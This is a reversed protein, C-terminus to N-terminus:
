RVFYLPRDPPSIEKTGRKSPGLPVGLGAGAPPLLVSPPVISEPGQPPKWAWELTGPQRGVRFTLRVPQRGPELDIERVVTQESLGDTVLPPASGVALEVTGGHTYFKFAHRGRSGVDLFGSWVIEFPQRYDLEEAFGGSAIAGDLRLLPPRGPIEVRGLLGRPGGGTPSLRETPVPAAERQGEDPSLSPGAEGFLFLPPPGSPRLTMELEVAHDGRPLSVVASKRAAGDPVKLIERGNVVLRAPGPGVMFVYDFFRSVRMRATWRHAGAQTSDAARQGLTPVVRERGDPERLLAGQQAQWRARSLRYVSLVFVDPEHTVNEVTGGPYLEALYPLFFLQRPYVVFALDRDAPLPAPLYSGPSLIGGRPIPNALLRVWGSNMMHFMDGLSFVWTEKGQAAAARGEATPYPWLVRRGETGFYLAAEHVAVGSVVVAAAIAATRSGAPGRAAALRRYIEGAVLGGLLPVASVGCSLRQLAPTEVTLVIGIFGAAFWTVVVLLRPDRIRCAAAVLGLLGLTAFGATAAPRAVPWFFNADPYRNFLGVSREVQELLIRPPSWEPHYYPLRALNERRFITTERARITFEGPERRMAAIFPTVTVLYAAVAVAAGGLIRLTLVRPSSAVLGAVVVAFFVPWIRGPPYFYISLGGAVAAGIWALLRGRRAAELLLSASLTWLFATPGAETTERSFMLGGGWTAYLAAASLGVAWGFHRVGLWLLLGLAATGSAAGLTRAGVFDVGFLKMFLALLAFYINSIHYWGRGFLTPPTASQIREIAVAARDGEDANIGGPTTALGGLRSAAGLVLVLAVVFLFLLQLRKRGDAPWRAVPWRPAYSLLGGSLAGGALLAALALFWIRVASLSEFNRGLIM